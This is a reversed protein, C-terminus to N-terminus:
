CHLPFPTHNTWPSIYNRCPNCRRLGLESARTLTNCSGLITHFRSKKLAFAPHGIM